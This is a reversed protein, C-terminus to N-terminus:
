QQLNPCHEVLISVLQDLIRDHAIASYEFWPDTALLHVNDEKVAKLKKWAASKQVSQWDDLTEQEQCVMLMIFDPEVASIEELTIARENEPIEIAPKLGLEGFFLEKMSRSCSLYFNQKYKNIFLFSKNECTQLLISKTKNLKIDFQKIWEDAKATKNLYKAIMMLQEQWNKQEDQISVIKTSETLREGIDLKDQQSAIIFEPRLEILKELNSQHRADIKYASLHLPIEEHYKHYYYPAWKPHLPAAYPVIDLALLQGIYNRHTVAIKKQRKKRYESPSLGTKKKFWRSFYYEDNIGIQQGIERLKLESHILLKKAKKLRQLHLYKIPSYGFKGTFLQVFYHESVQVMRALHEIQLQKNFHTEMYKKVKLLKGELAQDPAIRYSLMFYILEQFTIQLKLAEAFEMPHDMEILQHCYSEIKEFNDIHWKRNFSEAYNSEMIFTFLFVEVESKLHISYTEQPKCLYLEKKDVLIREKNIYIYGTGKPIYILLYNNNLAPAHEYDNPKTISEVKLIRMSVPDAEVQKIQQVM